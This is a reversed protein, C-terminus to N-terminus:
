RNRSPSFWESVPNINLFIWDAFSQNLPNILPRELPSYKIQHPTSFLNPSPERPREGWWCETAKSIAENASSAAKLVCSFQRAVHNTSCNTPSRGRSGGCRKYISARSTKLRAGGTVPAGRTNRWEGSFQAVTGRMACRQFKGPSRAFGIGDKTKLAAMPKEGSQAVRCGLQTLVALLKDLVFKGCLKIAFTNPMSKPM